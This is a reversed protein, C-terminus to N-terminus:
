TKYDHFTQTNIPYPSVIFKLIGGEHVLRNRVDRDTFTDRPNWLTAWSFDNLVPIQLSKEGHKGIPLFENETLPTNTNGNKTLYLYVFHSDLYTSTGNIQLTEHTYLTDTNAAITLQKSNETQQSSIPINM